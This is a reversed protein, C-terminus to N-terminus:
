PSLRRLNAEIAVDVYGASLVFDCSIISLQDWWRNRLWHTVNRNVQDAMVRLGDMDDTIVDEALPTMQGSIVWPTKPPGEEEFVKIMYDELEGLSQANAWRGTIGPWFLPHNDAEHHNYTVILTASSQLFQDLSVGWGLSAPAMVESLEETILAICGEHHETTEFFTFGGVEVVVMEGTAEVFSRLQDLVVRLPRWVTLGHVVWYPEEPEGELYGARLDIYRLGFVLVNYISEDQTIAYKMLANDAVPSYPTYTGADHVGPLVLDQVAVHGLEQRLGLLWRPRVKVCDIAVPIDDRIYAAWYGLCKGDMMDANVPLFPLTENSLHHHINAEPVVSEVPASWDESPDYQFLGLWDGDVIETVEWNIELQRQTTQGELSTSALASVWM